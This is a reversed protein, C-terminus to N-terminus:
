NQSATALRIDQTKKEGEAVSVMMSAPVVQTLFAPDYWEGPEADIVATLRYQGAPFGRFAFAGDTGPRTSLIRRSQPVWYRNDAPFLVITYDATPRGMADQLTGALEQTRDTFTVVAGSLNQNPEVDLPFDLVDVGNIVASKLTWAATPSGTGPAAAPGGVRGGGGGPGGARGGAINGRLAYRGPVVGPISFNGAADTPQPMVGPGGAGGGGNDVTAMMVRVVSLDPPAAATGAFAVRGSVTMGPQLMLALDTVDRGDVSVDTSAWLIQTVAPGRGGPGGRGRGGPGLQAGALGEAQAAEAARVPVRVMVRYQGPTVNQFQFSGDPNMRTNQTNLGPVAQSRAVQLMVQAGGPQSPDVGSIRGSVRATPVAQLQFDVGGREQSSELTIKSAEAANITGPYYVPAYATSQEPQQGLQQQIQQVRDLLQQGRGGGVLDGFAGGRGGGGRGGALAGVGGAAQVQQMLPELEARLQSALDGIGSNRPVASVLYEGPLLQFIRYIGRDDTQANGVNSVTREGNQITSRFVRVQTNPSPEGFEDVVVGTIVGGRPLRVNANNMVQGDALQIPTGQRGPKKAGYAINSYGPKSVNLTYRGAPLASFSFRGEDNTMASRGRGNGSLNVQARRVGSSSGELTVVGSIAATGTAAQAAQNDRPGAAGRGGGRPGAADGGARGGPAQTAPGSPSAGPAPAQGAAVVAATSCAVLAILFTRLGQM